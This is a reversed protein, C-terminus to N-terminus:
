CAETYGNTVTLGMGQYFKTLQERNPGGIHYPTAGIYIEGDHGKDRIQRIAEELLQRAVGQRRYKCDVFLSHILWEIRGEMEFSYYSVKASKANELGACCITWNDLSLNEPKTIFHM